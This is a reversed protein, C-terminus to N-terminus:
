YVLECHENRLIGYVKFSHNVSIQRTSNIKAKPNKPSPMFIFVYALLSYMMITINIFFLFFIYLNVLSTPEWCSCKRGLEGTFILARVFAIEPVSISECKISRTILQKCSCDLLCQIQISYIRKRRLYVEMSTWLADLQSFINSKTM